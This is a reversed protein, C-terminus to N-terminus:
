LLYELNKYSLTKEIRKRAYDCYVPNIEIGIFIRNMKKAVVGTTGSGMFPDLVIDNEKTLLNLFEQIVLEPYVAPHINGKISEVPSEILDKKISNGYIRIITFGDKDIHSKRGGEQGGYPLSHIGKIKMRFSEIKGFKVDKIANLLELKAKQKQDESLDSNDILEFYKKGVDNSSKKIRARTKDLHNMFANKNFYYKESKVFIFFPEKSPILKRADQRPTPNTKIWTVENILKVKACKMAEIAFRYPVLLLSGKEYKDGLNFVISGTDKIIRVCEKFTAILNEIYIEVTPENGIGLGKTGYDRQKYYPPSTIVLDVSDDPFKKLENLSDGCIIKNKYNEIDKLM